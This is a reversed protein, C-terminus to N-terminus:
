VPTEEGMIIGRLVGRGRQGEMAQRGGAESPFSDCNNAELEFVRKGEVEGM